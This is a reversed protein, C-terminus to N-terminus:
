AVKDHNLMMSALRFLSLDCILSIKQYVLCGIQKGGTNLSAGVTKTVPQHVDPKSRYFSTGYNPRNPTVTRKVIM